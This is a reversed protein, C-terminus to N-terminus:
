TTNVARNQDAAALGGSSFGGGFVSEFISGLDGMIDEYRMDSFHSFGQSDLGSKGYRDYTSRKQEDSLVQYAENIAKFKEEAEKDGQNRDPHFQLAMKRYAKKIEAADASRSIELIEYYELDM